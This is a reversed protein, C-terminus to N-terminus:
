GKAEAGAGAEETDTGANQGDDEGVPARFSDEIRTLVEEDLGSARYIGATINIGDEMTGLVETKIYHYLREHSPEPVELGLFEHEALWEKEPPMDLVHIGKVAVARMIRENMEARIKLEQVKYEAWAAKDEESTAEDAITDETHDAEVEDGGAGTITYTPPPPIRAEYTARIEDIMTAIPLCEVRQGRSTAVIVKGSDDGDRKVARKATRSKSAM